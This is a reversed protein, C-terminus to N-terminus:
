VHISNRDVQTRSKDCFMLFSVTIEEDKSALTTKLVHVESVSSKLEEASKEAKTLEKTAKECGM